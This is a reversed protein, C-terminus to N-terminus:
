LLAFDVHGLLIVKGEQNTATVEYTYLGENKKDKLIAKATVTDNEYVMGKFRVSFNQIYGKDLHNSFVSGVKAMTLMGHQIVSPLGTKKAEEDIIHIPNFDGSAGAYKILELKHVPSFVKSDFQKKM